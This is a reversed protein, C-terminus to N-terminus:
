VLLQQHALYNTYPPLSPMLKCNSSCLLFPKTFHNEKPNLFLSKLHISRTNDTETEQKKETFSNTQQQRDLTNSIM